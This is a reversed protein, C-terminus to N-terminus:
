SLYQNFLVRVSFFIVRFYICSKTTIILSSFIICQLYDILPLRNAELHIIKESGTSRLQSVLLSEGVFICWTINPICRAYILICVRLITFACNTVDTTNTFHKYFTKHQFQSTAEAAYHQRSNIPRPVTLVLEM